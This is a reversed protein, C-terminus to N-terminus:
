FNQQFISFASIPHLPHERLHPNVDLWLLMNAWFNKILRKVFLGWQFEISLFYINKQEESNIPICKNSVYKIVPNYIM